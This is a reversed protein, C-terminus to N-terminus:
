DKIVILKDFKYMETEFLIIFPIELCYIEGYDFVPVSYNQGGSGEFYANNISSIIKKSIMVRCKAYSMIAEAFAQFDSGESKISDAIAFNKSGLLFPIYYKQGAITPLFLKETEDTTKPAISHSFEAGVELDTNVTKVDINEPLDELTKEDFSEFIEEPDENALAFLVKSLTVKYYIQYEGNKYTISQVYDICSTFLLSILLLSLHRFFKKM